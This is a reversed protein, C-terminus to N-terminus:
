KEVLYMYVNVVPNASAVLSETIHVMDSSVSVIM